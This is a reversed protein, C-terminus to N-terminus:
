EIGVAIRQSRLACDTSHAEGGFNGLRELLIEAQGASGRIQRLHLFNEPASQGLVNPDRAAELPVEVIRLRCLLLPNALQELLADVVQKDGHVVNFVGDPLGAEAWLKAILMAASPDRESPKLIFTNGCAIAIPFMWMPVMAPFNFPTIGAVVGLPERFSFVDIGTSVQDSYEGKLLTPLGCAYEVVDLGRRVEGAADSIVKGHEDSIVAALDEVHGNMLERFACLIKTRTSLSSQSWSRFAAAASIVAHDVDQPSGLVLDAQQRGTAPNWVIGRRKSDGVVAKGGIWHTITNL